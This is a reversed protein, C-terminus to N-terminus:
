IFFAYKHLFEIVQMGRVDHFLQLIILFIHM